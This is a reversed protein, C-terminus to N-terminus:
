VIIIDDATLNPAGTLTLLVISAGSGAGDPDFRLIGTDTEYLFRVGANAAVPDPSSQFVASDLIGASLGGFAAGRFQLVDAHGFDAISDGADTLAQFCFRDAGHGGWLHDAGQGGWLRDKGAGGELRDDGAGGLLSDAGDGGALTDAGRGGRLTDAGELGDLIDGGRNGSLSDRGDTGWKVWGGRFGQMDDWALPQFGFRLPLANAALRYDGSAADAFLRSGFIRTGMDYGLAQWEAFSKESYGLDFAIPRGDPDYIFNHHLTEPSVPHEFNAQTVFSENGGWPVEVINHHIDNGPMPKGIDFNQLGVTKNGIVINHAVTNDRGGHLYIGGVVTGMVFNGTVIARSTDDDLYIGNSYSQGKVFGGVTAELGGADVVINNTIIDGDHTGDPGSYIYIAGTDSSKQSSHLVINGTITNGGSRLAPDYNLGGIGFRPVDRIVNDSILNGWNEDYQIAGGLVFVEGTNEILNNKVTNQHSGHALYVASGWLHSFDNGAITVDSCFYRAFVGQSVNVFNNGSITISSAFEMSIAATDFDGDPAATATDSFTFGSISIDQGGSIDIISHNGSVVAGTGDFDTPAKFHITGSAEDFWWEGEKDLHAASGEVFFRSREGLEYPASEAFTILSRASDVSEVTLRANAWGADTFIHVKM